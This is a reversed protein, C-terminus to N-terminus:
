LLAEPNDKKLVNKIKEGEVGYDKSKLLFMVKIM